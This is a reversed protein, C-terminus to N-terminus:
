KNPANEGVYKVAKMITWISVRFEEACIEYREMKPKGAIEKFREAYRFYAMVDPSIKGEMVLEPITYRDTLNLKTM